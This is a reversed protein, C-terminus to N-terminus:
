LRLREYDISCAIPLTHDRYARTDRTKKKGLMRVYMSIGAPIYRYCRRYKPNGNQAPESGRINTGCGAKGSCGPYGHQGQAIDDTSKYRILCRDDGDGDRPRWGIAACKRARCLAKCEEFSLWKM